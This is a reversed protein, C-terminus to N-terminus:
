DRLDDAHVTWESFVDRVRRAAELQGASAGRSAGAIVRAYHAALDEVLDTDDLADLDGAIQTNFQVRSRLWYQTRQRRQRGRQRSWDSADGVAVAPDSTYALQHIDAQWEDVVTERENCYDRSDQDEALSMAEYWVDRLSYLLPMVDLAERLFRAFRHERARQLSVEALETWRDALEIIATASRGHARDIVALERGRAVPHFRDDITASVDAISAEQEARGFDIGFAEARLAPFLVFFMEDLSAVQRSRWATMAFPVLQTPALRPVAARAAIVLRPPLDLGFGFGGLGITASETLAERRRESSPDVQEHGPYLTWGDCSLVEDAGLLVIEYPASSPTGSEVCASDLWTVATELMEQRLPGPPMQAAHGILDAADDM